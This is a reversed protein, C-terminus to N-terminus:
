ARSRVGAPSIGHWSFRVGGDGRLLVVALQTLLSHDRFVEPPEPLREGTPGINGTKLMGVDSKVYTCVDESHGLKEAVAIYDKTKGRMASQLANIEPLVPLIDFSLLLETLNGPVFTYASKEGTEPAHALRTFHEALMKKQRLQSSDKQTTTM